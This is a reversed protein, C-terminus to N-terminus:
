STARRMRPASARCSWHPPWRRPAATAGPGARRCYRGRIRPDGEITGHRNDYFTMRIPAGGRRRIVEERVEFPQWREEGDVERRACGDRCDQVWSDITDAYAYTVGLRRRRQPGRSDGAGGADVRRGALWATGRAAGRVLRRAVPQDGLAPRQGADGDRDCHAFAGGGLQELRGVGARRSAWAGRGAGAAGRHASRRDADYRFGRHSWRVARRPGGGARGREAVARALARGQGADTRARRLGM